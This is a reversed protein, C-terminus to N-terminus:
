KLVTSDTAHILSDIASQKGRQEAMDLQEKRISYKYKNPSVKAAGQTVFTGFVGDNYYLWIDFGPVVEDILAVRDILSKASKKDLGQETTLYDMAVNFHTQGIKVRRPSPLKKVLDNIDSQLNSVQESKEVLKELLGRYSVNEEKDLLEKLVAQQKEDFGLSDVGSFKVQEDASKGTNYQKVLNSIEKNITQIDNTKQDVRAVLDQFDAVNKPGTDCGLYFIFGIFMMWYRTIKM